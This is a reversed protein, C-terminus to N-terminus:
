SVRRPDDTMAGTAAAKSRLSEDRTYHLPTSQDWRLLLTAKRAHFTGITMCSTVAKGFEPHWTSPVTRLAMGEATARVRRGSPMTIFVADREDCRGQTVQVEPHWHWYSRAVGPGLIEDEVSLQRDLFRWTRTHVPRGSLRMFGDHSCTVFKREGESRVQLGFPRARRAVRFGSWVESSDTDDLTVTNHAATRRQRLREDSTGYLSTGSNVLLRMGDLSAEFSLTDAHAHGPLYDPGIRAVDLIVVLDHHRVRVYGSSNLLTCEPPSHCESGVNLERAYRALEAPPCAAGLAADNFFAIEGDPHSMAALWAQMPGVIARLRNLLEDDFSRRAGGFAALVNVLDLVDELVIAHYMPSLEFHGGDDLIQEPLQSSAIRSGIDLWQTSESAEFFLGAFILAKANAFLHNGLLYWEVRRRLMRVQQALSELCEAPLENGAMAWKIWNVIRMSTPYPAWATGPGPPNERVWRMLLDRHWDRREQADFATLDQFYHQHYRWLAPLSDDDWGIEDLDHTENLLLLSRPGTLSPPRRAPPVWVDLLNRRPPAARSSLPFVPLQNWLRGYVQIPRLHRLTRWFLISERLM